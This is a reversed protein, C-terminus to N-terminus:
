FHSKVKRSVYKTDKEAHEFKRYCKVWKETYEASAEMCLNIQKVSAHKGARNFYNSQTYIVFDAETQSWRQIVNGSM